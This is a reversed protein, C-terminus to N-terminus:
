SLKQCPIGAHELLELGIKSRYYLEKFVIRKIGSQSILKSCLKCPSYITYLTSGEIKIGKKAAYLIANQEAHIEHSSSWDYHLNFFEESEIWEEYPIKIDNEKYYFEFYDNCHIFGSISGNYGISIIRNDQVLVAGVQIRLCTSRKSVEESIKIFLEDWTPRM